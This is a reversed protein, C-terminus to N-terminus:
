GWRAEADGEKGEEENDGEKESDGGNHEDNNDGSKFREDAGTVATCWFIYDATVCLCGFETRADHTDDKPDLSIVLNNSDERELCLICMGVFWVWINWGLRSRFYISRTMSADIDPVQHFAVCRRWFGYELCYDM